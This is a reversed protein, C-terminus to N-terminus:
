GSSLVGWVSFNIQGSLTLCPLYPPAEPFRESLSGLLINYACRGQEPVRCMTGQTEGPAKGGAIDIWSPCTRNGPLWRFRTARLNHIMKRFVTRWLLLSYRKLVWQSVQSGVSHGYALYNGEYWLNQTDRIQFLNPSSPQLTNHHLHHIYLAQSQDEISGQPRWTSLGVACCKEEEELPM